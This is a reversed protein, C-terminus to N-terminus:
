GGHLIARVPWIGPALSLATLAPLLNFRFKGRTGKKEFRGGIDCVTGDGTEVSKDSGQYEVGHARRLDLIQDSRVRKRLSVIVRSFCLLRLLSSCQIVGIGNYRIQITNM